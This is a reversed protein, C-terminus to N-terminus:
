KIDKEGMRQLYLADEPNLAALNLTASKEGLHYAWTATNVDYLIKEGAHYAVFANNLEIPNTYMVKEGRLYEHYVSERFVAPSIVTGPITITPVISLTLILAFTIGLVLLVYWSLNRHVHHHQHPHRMVNPM